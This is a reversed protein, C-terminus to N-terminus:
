SLPFTIITGKLNNNCSTHADTIFVCRFSCLSSTFLVCAADFLNCMSDDRYFFTEANNATLRKARICKRNM